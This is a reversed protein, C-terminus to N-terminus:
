FFREFKGVIESVTAAILRLDTDVPRGDEFAIERGVYGAMEVNPEPSDCHFRMIEADLEIAVPKPLNSHDVKFAHLFKTAVTAFFHRDVLASLRDNTFLQTNTPIMVANLLRHKDLNSLTRLRRLSHFDKSPANYCQFPEIIARHAPSVEAVHTQWNARDESLPFQVGKSRKESLVGGNNKLALEYALCDLTSRLNHIADGAIASAGRLLKAIDPVESVYLIYDGTQKDFKGAMRPRNSETEFLKTIYANLACRHEEARAIKTRSDDLSPTPM